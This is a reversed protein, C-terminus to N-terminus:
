RAVVLHCVKRGRIGLSTQSIKGTSGVVSDMYVNDGQFRIKSAAYKVSFKGFKEVRGTGAEFIRRIPEM